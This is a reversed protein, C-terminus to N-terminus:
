PDTVATGTTTGSEFTRSARQPNAACIAEAQVVSIRLGTRIGFLPRNNRSPPQGGLLFIALDRSFALTAQAAVIRAPRLPVAQQGVFRQLLPVSQRIRDLSSAGHFVRSARFMASMM